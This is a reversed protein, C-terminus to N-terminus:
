PQPPKGGSNGNTAPKDGSVAPGKADDVLASTITPKSELTRHIPCKNAIELLRQRQAADLNGTLAIDRHIVDIKKNDAGAVKEHTLTVSVDQLDWKKQDAYMRLTMSTCAGLSALLLDYPAPGDDLGGLSEPEDATFGHAGAVVDQTFKGASNSKVTVITKHAM